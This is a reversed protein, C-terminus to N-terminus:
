VGGVLDLPMLALQSRDTIGLKQLTKGEPLVEGGYMLAVTKPNVGFSKCVKTKIQGVTHEAKVDIEALGAIEGIPAQVTLRM